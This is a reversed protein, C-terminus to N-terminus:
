VRGWDLTRPIAGRRYLVACLRDSALKVNQNDHQDSDFAVVVVRKKWPIEDFDSLVKTGEGNEIRGRWNWVGTLALCLLGRSLTSDAKKVGETVLLPETSARVRERVLPHVDLYNTAGLPTEYKLEREVGEGNSVTRPRDPRFQGATREGTVTWGPLWLGDSPLQSAGYSELEVASSSLSAYGRGEIVEDNIASDVSLTKYHSDTLRLVAPTM